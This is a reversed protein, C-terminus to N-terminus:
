LRNDNSSNSKVQAALAEKKRARYLSSRARGSAKYWEVAAKRAEDHRVIHNDEELLQVLKRGIVKEKESYGDRRRPPRSKLIGAKEKERRRKSDTRRKETLEQHALKLSDEPSYGSGSHYIIRAKRRVINARSNYGPQKSKPSQFFSNVADNSATPAKVKPSTAHYSPSSQSGTLGEISALLPVRLNHEPSNIAVAADHTQPPKKTRYKACFVSSVLLLGTFVLLIFSYRSCLRMM